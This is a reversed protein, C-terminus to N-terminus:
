LKKPLAKKKLSLNISTLKMGRREIKEKLDEIERLIKMVEEERRMEKEEIREEEREERRKRRIRMVLPYSFTLIAFFISIALLVHWLEIETLGSVETQASGMPVMTVLSALMAELLLIGREMKTKM